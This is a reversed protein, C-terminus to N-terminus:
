AVAEACGGGVAAPLSATGGAGRPADAPGAALRRLLPLMDNGRLIEWNVQLQAIQDDPKLEGFSAALVSGLRQKEAASADRPVQGLLTAATVARAQGLKRPLGALAERWAAADGRVRAARVSEPTGRLSGAELFGAVTLCWGSVPFEPAEMEERVAKRAADRKAEPLGILGFAYAYMEQRREDRLGAAMVAIAADTGLYRVDAVAAVRAEPVQGNGEPVAALVGEAKKLAAAQWAPTAAVVRVRLANSVVPVTTWSGGAVQRSVRGSTVRVTYEGPRDFRVWENMDLGIVTPVTSLATSSSIGGGLFGMLSGFYDRLPDTWGGAPEVAFQEYNMRGSRDYGAMNIEFTKEAAASFQLRLGIREGAHFSSQGTATEVRLVPQPDAQARAGPAWGLGAVVGALVWRRM